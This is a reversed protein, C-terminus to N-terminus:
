PSKPLQWNIEAQQHAQLARNIASFPRSGFFGRRASLPSPHVGTLVTHKDTDICSLKQRAFNGWLVFVLHPRTQSLAQLLAETFTEWGRKQHSAAKHARVTLVTNLLLVGQQAWATLCGHKVPSIGLDSELERYMNKLSPPIAQEPPVSFALGHAQGDNHYPDQGLIVVKVQEPPILALATFIQPRPPYITASQWEQELFAELQSWHPSDFAPALLTKWTSPCLDKLPTELTM